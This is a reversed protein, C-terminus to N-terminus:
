EMDIGLQHNIRSLGIARKIYSDKHKYPDVHIATYPRGINGQEFMIPVTGVGVSTVCM